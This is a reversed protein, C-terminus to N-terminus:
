PKNKVQSFYAGTLTVTLNKYMCLSPLQWNNSPLMHQLLAINVTVLCCHLITLTCVPVATKKHCRVFVDKM